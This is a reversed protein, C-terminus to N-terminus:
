ESVSAVELADETEESTKARIGMRLEQFDLGVDSLVSVSFLTSPTLDSISPTIESRPPPEDEDPQPELFFLPMKPKASSKTLLNVQRLSSRPSTVVSTSASSTSPISPVKVVRVEVASSSVSSSSSSLLDEEVDLVEDLEEDAHEDVVASLTVTTQL